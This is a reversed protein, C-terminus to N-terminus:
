HAWVEEDGHGARLSSLIGFRVHGLFYQKGFVCYRPLHEVLIRNRPFQKMLICNRPLQLYSIQRFGNKTEVSAHPLGHRQNKTATIIFYPVAFFSRQDSLLLLLWIQLCSLACLMHMPFSGM